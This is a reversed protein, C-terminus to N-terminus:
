LPPHQEDFHGYHMGVRVCDAIENRAVANMKCAQEFTHDVDLVHLKENQLFEYDLANQVVCQVDDVSAVVCHVYVDRHVADVHVTSQVSVDDHAVDADRAYAYHAAANYRVSVVYRADGVTGDVTEDVHNDCFCLPHDDDSDIQRLPARSDRAVSSQHYYDDFRPGDSDYQKEYHATYQYDLHEPYSQM